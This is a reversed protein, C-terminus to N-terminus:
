WGNNWAIWKEYMNPTRRLHHEGIRVEGIWKEDVM